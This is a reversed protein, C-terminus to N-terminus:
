KFITILIRLFINAWIGASIDDLVIGWGGNLRQLHRAPFPKAIDFFRFLIFGLLINKQTAPIMFLSIIQGMVEDIVIPKADKKLFYKESATSSPIGIGTLFLILILILINPQNRLFFYYLAASIFSAATGPILPFYGVGFFTSVLRSLNNM